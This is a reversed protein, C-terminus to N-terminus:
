FIVSGSKFLARALSIRAKQGGSLNEGYDEINFTSKFPLDLFEIIEEVRNSVRGETNSKNSFVINDLISGNLLLPDQFVYNAAIFNGGIEKGDVIINGVYNKEYGTLIELLTTKGSGSASVLAYHNGIKFTHPHYRFRLSGRSVILNKIEIQSTVPVSQASQFEKHLIAASYVKSIPEKCLKYSVMFAVISQFSPVAKVLFMLNILEAEIADSSIFVLFIVLSLGICETIPRFIVSMWFSKFKIDSLKLAVSQGQALISDVINYHIIEKAGKIAKNSFSAENQLTSVVLSKLTDTKQLIKALLFIVIAFASYLFVSSGHLNTFIYFLVLILYSMATLLNLIAMIMNHSLFETLNTLNWFTEDKDIRSVYQRGRSLLDNVFFNYINARVRFTIQGNLYLNLLKVILGFFLLLLSISIANTQSLNEFFKLQYPVKNGISTIFKSLSAFIILDVLFM